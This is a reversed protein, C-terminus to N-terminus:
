GHTITAPHHEDYDIRESRQFSNVLFNFYADHSGYKDNAYLRVKDDWDVPRQYKGALKVPMAQSFELPKKVEILCDFRGLREIEEVVSDLSMIFDTELVLCRGHSTEIEYGITDPSLEYRAVLQLFVCDGKFQKLLQPFNPNMSASKISM